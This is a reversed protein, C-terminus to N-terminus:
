RPEKIRTFPRPVTQTEFARKSRLRDSRIWRPLGEHTTVIWFTAGPGSGVMALFEPTAPGLIDGDASEWYIPRANAGALEMTVTSTDIVIPTQCAACVKWTANVLAGCAQCRSLTDPM